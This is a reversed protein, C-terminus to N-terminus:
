QRMVQSRGPNLESRKGPQLAPDASGNVSHGSRPRGASLRPYKRLIFPTNTKTSGTTRTVTRSRCQLWKHRDYVSSRDWIVTVIWENKFTEKNQLSAQFLLHICVSRLPGDIPNWHKTGMQQIRSPSPRKTYKETNSSRGISFTKIRYISGGKTWLCGAALPSEGRM